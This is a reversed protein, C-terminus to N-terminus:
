ASTTLLPLRVTFTSGQGLTSNLTVSGGHLEVLRKVIYLGLGSSSEGATPRPTLKRFKGFVLPLEEPPIGPGEDQVSFTMESLTDDLARLNIWVRSGPPSYKVANSILNDFIERLRQSDAHLPLPHGPLTLSLHINKAQANARNLDVVARAVQTADLRERHLAVEGQDLSAHNMLDELSGLLNVSCTRILGLFEREQEPPLAAGESADEAKSDVLIEALSLVNAMPNRLDHAIISLMESKHEILGKLEVNSERLQANSAELESTRESVRQELALNALVLRQNAAELEDILTAKQLAEGIQSGIAQLLQIDAPHFGGSKANIAEVVGVIAGARERVPVALLNRTRFGTRQDVASNFRPDAYADPVNVIEGTTACHGGIGRDIPFRIQALNEGTASLSWLEGAPRDVVFFSARECQMITITKEIVRGILSNVKRTSTVASLVDLMVSLRQNSDHLHQFLYFNEVAVSIQHSFARFLVRDDADFSGTQKNIVQIVGVLKDRTTMVPGCLLSKTRYGLRQDNTPDFRPDAYVDDLCVTEGTKFVHGAIGRGSPVVLRQSGVGLAVQSWLEGTQRDVLFLSARDAKMVRAALQVIRQILGETGESLLRPDSVDLFESLDRLTQETLHSRTVSDRYRRNAEALREATFSPYLAPIAAFLAPLRDYPLELLECDTEARATTRRDEQEFYEAEGILDGPQQVALTLEEDAWPLFLKVSGVVLVFLSGAPEAARFLVEGAALRRGNLHTALM